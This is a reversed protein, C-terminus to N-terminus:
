EVADHREALESAHDCLADQEAATLRTFARILRSARSVFDSEVQVNASRYGSFFYSISQGLARCLDHLKVAGVRLKGSEFLDLDAETIGAARAVESQGLGRIERAERLKAGVHIDVADSASNTSSFSM